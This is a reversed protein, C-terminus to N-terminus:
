LVTQHLFEGAFTTQESVLEVVCITPVLVFLKLDIAHNIIASLLDGIKFDM